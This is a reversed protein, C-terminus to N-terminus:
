GRVQAQPPNPYESHNLVGANRRVCRFDLSRRFFSELWGSVVGFCGVMLSVIKTLVRLLPSHHTVKTDEKTVMSRDWPVSFDVLM